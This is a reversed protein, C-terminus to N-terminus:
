SRDDIIVGNIIKQIRERISADEVYRSRNGKRPKINIISDFEIFESAGYRDPYLNIGWLDDQLSGDDLMYQEIDAHLEADAVVIGRAIDVDAKVMDVFLNAALGKLETLAMKDIKIM